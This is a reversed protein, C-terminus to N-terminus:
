AAESEPGRQVWLWHGANFAEIVRGRADMFEVAGADTTRMGDAQVEYPQGDSLKLHFTM